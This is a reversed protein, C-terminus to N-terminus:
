KNEEKHFLQPIFVGGCSKYNPCFYRDYITAEAMLYQHKKYLHNEENHIRFKPMPGIWLCDVNDCKWVIVEKVKIFPGNNRLGPKPKPIVNENKDLFLHSYGEYLKVFEYRLVHFGLPKPERSPNTKWTKELTRGAETLYEQWSKQRNRSYGEEWNKLLQIYPRMENHQNPTLVRLKNLAIQLEEIQEELVKIAKMNEEKYLSQTHTVKSHPSYDILQSGV